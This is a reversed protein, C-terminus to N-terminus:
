QWYMSIQSNFDQTIKLFDEIIVSIDIYKM